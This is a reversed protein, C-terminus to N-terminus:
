RLSSKEMNQNVLRCCDIECFLNSEYLTMQEALDTITVSMWLTNNDYQSYM